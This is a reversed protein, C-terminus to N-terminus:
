RGVQYLFSTIPQPLKACCRFNWGFWFILRLVRAPYKFLSTLHRSMPIGYMAEFVNSIHLTEVAKESEMSHLRYTKTLVIMRRVEHVPAVSDRVFFQIVQSYKVVALVLISFVLLELVFYSLPKCKM